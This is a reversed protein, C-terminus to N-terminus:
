QRDGVRGSGRGDGNRRDRYLELSQAACYKPQPHLARAAPRNPPAARRATGHRTLFDPSACCVFRYTGIRRAVMSSSPLDGIRVAVDFGEAVLDVRRNVLSMEFVVGPHSATFRAIIPPLRSIGLGSPATLRLRGSLAGGYSWEGLAKTTEIVAEARTLFELGAETLRQNRTTREILTAGYRHELTQIRRGVMAPSLNLQRAAKAFSGTRAAALFTRLEDLEAMRYMYAIIITGSLCNEKCDTCRM